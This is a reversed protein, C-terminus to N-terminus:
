QTISLYRYSKHTYEKIAKHTDPMLTVTIQSYIERPMKTQYIAKNATGPYSVSMTTCRSVKEIRDLVAM